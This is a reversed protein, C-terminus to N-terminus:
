RPRLYMSSLSHCGVEPVRSREFREPQKDPGIVSVNLKLSRLQPASDVLLSLFTPSFCRIRIDLARLATLQYGGSKPGTLISAVQDYSFHRSIITLSTVTPIHRQLYPIAAAESSLTFGSFGFSLSQLGPLLVHCWEQNLFESIDIDFFSSRGMFNFALHQLQSQHTELFHHLGILSPSESSVFLHTIDLRSLYPMRQLSSLMSSINLNERAIFTLSRLTPGHDILFPLLSKRILENPLKPESTPLIRLAISLKELRLLRIHSLLVLHIEELPVDLHLNILNAAFIPWGAKIVDLKTCFFSLDDSSYPLFIDLTTLTTLGPVANLLKYLSTEPKHGGVDRDRCM